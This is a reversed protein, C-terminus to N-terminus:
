RFVTMMLDPTSLSHGPGIVIVHLELLKKFVQILRSIVPVRIQLGLKIKCLTM